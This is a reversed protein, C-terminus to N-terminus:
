VKFIKKLFDKIESWSQQDADANYAISSNLKM